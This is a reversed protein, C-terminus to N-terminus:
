KLFVNWFGGLHLVFLVMIAEFLVLFAKDEPMLKFATAVGAVAYALILLQPLIHLVEHLTPFM